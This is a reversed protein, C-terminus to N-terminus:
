QREKEPLIGAETLIARLERRRENPLPLLPRRPPGGRLGLMDMAAKLAPVGWRRTVATNARVIRQQIRLAEEWNGRGALRHIECCLDPAINALGLIGGNAGAAIAPLLFGASGALIAFGASGTERLEALNAVNGSSDKVGVINEHSSLAALLPAQMDIGTNAPMNYLLIPIPSADAVARFHRGLVDPTMQGRYFFPPLVLAADAGAKSADRTLDITAETSLLGTGAIVPRGVPACARVAEILDLKETRSLHVAEGNSGLVVYGSLTHGNWWALNASLADRDIAGSADFPTPIPPFVGELLLAEM